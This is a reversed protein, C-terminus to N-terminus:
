ANAIYNHLLGFSGKYVQFWIKWTASWWFSLYSKVLCCFLNSFNPVKTHQCTQNECVWDYIRFWLNYPWIINFWLITSKLQFLNFRYDQASKLAGSHSMVTIYSYAEGGTMGCKMWLKGLITISKMSHFNQKM